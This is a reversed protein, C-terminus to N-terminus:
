GLTSKLFRALEGKAALARKRFVDQLVRTKERLVAADQLAACLLTPELTALSLLNKGEWHASFAVIKPDLDFAWWPVGSQTALVLPHFRMSVVGSLGSFYSLVESVGSFVYVPACLHDAFFEAIERDEGRHFAVFELNWGKRQLERLGECLVEKRELAERRLFVGLRQSSARAKEQELLFVPDAGLSAPCLRHEELFALTAEDRALFLRVRRLLKRVLKVSLKRRFPGLGCGFFVVPKGVRQALSLFTAYYLLSRFSTADQLLSGGGVVVGLSEFLASLVRDPRRREVLIVEGPLPPVLSPNGVIVRYAFSLSLEQGIDELARLTALLSLEDGWNGFGYYGYLVLPIKWSPTMRGM